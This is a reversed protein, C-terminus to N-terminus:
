CGAIGSSVVTYTDSTCGQTTYVNGICTKPGESCTSGTGYCHGLTLPTTNTIWKEGTGGGPPVYPTYIACTYNCTNYRASCLSGTNTGQALLVGPVALCILGALGIMADRKKM